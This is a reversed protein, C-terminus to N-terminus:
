LVGLEDSMARPAPRAGQLARILLSDRGYVDPRFGTRGDEEVIATWYLLYVPISEQLDIRATKTTAILQSLEDLASETDGSIALSALAAIQEVRVCGHSLTRIERSFTAKTPTDHLYVNFKNAMELKLQGLANGPGPLQRIQGDVFVFGQSQLYSPNARQKPWIERRAISPPIHWSPNVTVATAEARLIPTRWRARGVVVNSDLVVAGGDIFQLTADAANVAIRRPELERPMWRWREMNAAIQETRTTVPINLAALTRPGLRGDPALGNRQQYRKLADILSEGDHGVTDDEAVLRARLLETNEGKGDSATGEPIVPWGGAAEVARYHALALKLRQYEGHKPSLEALFAAMTGSSAANALAGAFDFGLAPLAIDQDVDTPQVRGSRLDRAYRLLSDTMLLEFETKELENTASMTSLQSFRYDQPNLGESEANRLADVALRAITQAAANGSWIPQYNRREYVRRLLEANVTSNESLSERLSDVASSGHVYPYVNGDLGKGVAPHEPAVIPMVALLVVSTKFFTGSPRRLLSRL